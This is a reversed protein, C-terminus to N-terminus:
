LIRDVHVRVGVIIGENGVDLKNDKDDLYQLPLHIIKEIFQLGYQHIVNSFLPPQVTRKRLLFVSWTPFGKAASDGGNM